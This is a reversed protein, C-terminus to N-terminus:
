KATGMILKKMTKSHIPNFEPMIPDRVARADALDKVEGYGILIGMESINRQVDATELFRDTITVRQRPKIAWELLMKELRACEDGYALSSGLDNYEEPDTKLDFLMPQYGEAYIYKFRGDFIMRLWCERPPTDLEIQAEMFAYDYESVVYKRWDETSEGHLIPALSRGDIIHPQPYGGAADLFTPVIDIAEVLHDSTSGRTADAAERPDYVILPVCVSAEHFLDKDGLWHDGLYDGHDSTFVIMTDDMRGREEMFKFLRGMEDDIQKILGMYAPMVADRVEDDAFALSVRRKTYADYIPHPDIKESWDRKLPLADEPTYMSNYPAPAMYPWHPKIFSLHLCWQNEGAEEIFDM